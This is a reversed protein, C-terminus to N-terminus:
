RRTRITTLPSVAEVNTLCQLIEANARAEELGARRSHILSTIPELWARKASPLSSNSIAPGDVQYYLAYPFRVLMLRRNKGDVVPASEPFLTLREIADQVAAAFAAGLGVSQGEYWSRAALVDRRAALRFSVRM